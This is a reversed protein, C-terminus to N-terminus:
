KNRKRKFFETMLERCDAELCGCDTQATALEATPHQSLNWVSGMAGVTPDSVGYVVRPIRANVIAGACMPCPELTVYLTTGGLRWSGIDRCAHNIVNIEAHGLANQALERTNHGKAIVQGSADDVLVAGVPIDGAEEALRAQEIALRMFANDRETFHDNHM